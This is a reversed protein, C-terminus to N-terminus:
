AYTRARQFEDARVSEPAHVLDAPLDVMGHCAPSGRRDAGGSQVAAFHRLWDYSQRKSLNKIPTMRKVDGVDLVGTKKFRFCYGPWVVRAPSIAQTRV